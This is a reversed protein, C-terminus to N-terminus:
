ILSIQKPMNPKWEYYVLKYFGRGFKDPFSDEGYKYPRTNPKIIMHDNNFEINVKENIYNEKFAILKMGKAYESVKYGDILKKIKLTKM